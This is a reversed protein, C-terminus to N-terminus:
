AAAAAHRRRRAKFRRELTAVNPVKTAVNRAGTLRTLWNRVWLMAEVDDENYDLVRRTAAEREEQTNATAIAEGYWVMSNGGSAESDRWAFSTKKAVDKISMTETPWLTQAKLVKLLDVWMDSAFLEDLEAMAPVGAVGAHKRALARMCREEAPSYCYLRLTLGNVESLFRLTDIWKWMSAFAAAEAASSDFGPDANTNIAHDAVYRNTRKGLEINVGEAVTTKHGWLYILDDNGPANEMDIDVEIDGRPIDLKDVGRKVCVREVKAVRAQDIADALGLKREPNDIQDAIKATADDLEALDAFTYVGAADLAEARIRKRRTGILVSAPTAPDAGPIRAEAIWDPVEIGADVLIATRRDLKALASRTRIGAATLVKTQYARIGYVLSIHDAEELQDHCSTRWKCGACYPQLRPEALPELTDDNLMAQARDIVDLRIAFQEDYISLASRRRRKPNDDDSDGMWLAEAIDFWLIEMEKGIVGGLVADGEVNFGFHELARYYHALQMADDLHPQGVRTFVMGEAPHVAALQSVTWDGEREGELTRHHKVDVPLYGWRGDSRKYGRVLADPEAIRRGIVDGPLRANWILPAGAAMAALTAQERAAKDQANRRGDDDIRDAPLFVGTTRYLHELHTGITTEFKNGDEMRQATAADPEDALEPNNFVDFHAQCAPQKAVYGGGLILQPEELVTNSM